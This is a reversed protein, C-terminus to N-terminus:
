VVFLGGRDQNIEFRNGFALDNSVFDIPPNPRDCLLSECARRLHRQSAIRVYFGLRRTHQDSVEQEDNRQSQHHRREDREEREPCQPSRKYGAGRDEDREHPCHRDCGNESRLDVDDGDCNRGQYEDDPKGVRHVDNRAIVFRDFLRRACALGDELCESLHRERGRQGTDRRPYGKCRQHQTRDLRHTEKAHM